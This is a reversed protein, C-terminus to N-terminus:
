RNEDEDQAAWMAAYRGGAALLQTHTGREAVTGGDLVVIQDAAAITPLRHAIVLLTRGAALESLADQVAAEAEPDAFATAEDLVLVPTDALLARAIAVRQAEGGSLRADVTDYGDPLATVRDHIQAATAAAVVEADTAGPRGLRINDAVTGHVLAVDQLVFGVWRYLEDPAIDRVDVGGIRVAGGTVDHFRPLLTALTSKGSGSAGVLATVTGPRLELSVGRLVEAGADYGFRVDELVVRHDAPRRGPSAVPLVPTDLLERLRLAAAAAVRRDEGGFSLATVTTPLVLAVLVGAMAEVPTVWGRGVFWVVGLTSVLGVVPASILMTSVAELRLMPRVWGAFFRGYEGAARQYREHARRARGFAKVVGIGSVFEVVASSIRGYAANMEAMKEAYGRMMWAYAAAFLPLTGVALLALRWDLLCLYGLGGLPLVVAATLEVSHHAVLHHLDAIDNQAAKRVAGSSTGTFWGLPVGSLRRVIRRRLTAQLDVDAFHTITLALGILLGRVGLGAVALWAVTIVAGRDVPGAALVLEALEALAVFPVLAALAGVAALVVALRIRWIVPRRLDALAVTAARRAERARPVAAPTGAATETEREQVATM